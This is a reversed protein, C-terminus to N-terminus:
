GSPAPSTTRSSPSGTTMTSTASPAAATPRPRTSSTSAPRPPSTSPRGTARSSSRRTTTLSRRRAAAGGDTYEADIVGFINANPDHGGDASTKITGSCGNASTVPHGHSDHGLIYTVKVKSCDVTGDEPDTVTVKFPIEDGFDFLAGEAPLELTVKPATNGVVVQVSASATRGTPDKVTLTATYTGNARYTHAPDAATSTGGDGFDWAYSLADGDPDTTSVSSFTVKLPATGSTKNASAEASPSRGDTANEIRYLASHEDGGFWATGYDLVYLAGDPGFAMDM